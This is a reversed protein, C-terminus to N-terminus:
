LWRIGQEHIEFSLELHTPKEVILRRMDEKYEIRVIKDAWPYLYQLGSPEVGEDSERVQATVIVFCGLEVFERLLALLAVFKRLGELELAESRYFNNISDIALLLLKSLEIHTALDLVLEILHDTDLAEGFLVRHNTIGMQVVRDAYHSGETSIYAIIYNTHMSHKITNLVFNTKGSAAIGYVLITSPSDFLITDLLPNGTSPRRDM